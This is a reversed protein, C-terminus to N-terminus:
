VNKRDEMIKIEFNNLLPLYESKFHIGLGRVKWAAEARRIPQANRKRSLARLARGKAIDIGGIEDDFFINSKRIFNERDNCLSVGRAIDGNDDEILYVVGCRHLTANIDKRLYYFREKM